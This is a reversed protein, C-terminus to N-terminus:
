FMVCGLVGDWGWDVVDAPFEDLAGFEDFGVFGVEDPLTWSDVGVLSGEDVRRSAKPSLHQRQNTNPPLLM